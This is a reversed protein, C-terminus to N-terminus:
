KFIGFLGRTSKEGKYFIGNIEGVINIKGNDQRLEEIKLNNGEISVAGLKTSLELYDETFSEVNIVGDITLKSKNELIVTQKIEKQIDMNEELLFVVCVRLLSYANNKDKHTQKQFLRM